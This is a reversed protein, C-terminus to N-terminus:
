KKLEIQQYSSAFIRWNIDHQHCLLVPQRCAHTSPDIWLRTEDSPPRRTRTVTTMFSSGCGQSPGRFSCFHLQRTLVQRQLYVLTSTQRGLVHTGLVMLDIANNSFTFHQTTKILFYLQARLLGHLGMLTTLHESHWM